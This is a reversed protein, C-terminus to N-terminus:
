GAVDHGPLTLAFRLNDAPLAIFALYNEVQPDSQVNLYVM